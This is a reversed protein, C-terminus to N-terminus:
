PVRERGPLAVGILGGSLRRLVSELREKEQDLRNRGAELRTNVSDELASVRRRIPTVHLAVVSDVMARARAEAKAVEEGAVRSM